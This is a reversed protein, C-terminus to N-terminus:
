AEANATARSPAQAHARAPAHAQHVAASSAKAPHRRAAQSFSILRGNAEDWLSLRAFGFSEVLGIKSMARLEPHDRMVQGLRYYPIRSSLHHVHHVGINATFWHLAPPLDYQSSGLLAFDHRNWEGNRAWAVGEYQHQVFFLWVGTTAAVLVTTLYIMLVPWLGFVAAAGGILVAAVATTGLTSAWPRWGLHMLGVPLRNQLFFTFAPGLGFLVLPHRYLRYGLRRLRPLARYEDVTLLDIGGLGRRDLNGSTAHHMNHTRRWYDYPTLTFVGITRGAWNNLRGGRFFAGHGCDHQILFLRVLFLGAPLTLLLAAWWLGNQYALGALAWLLLLPGATIAIEAASRGHGPEHYSALQRAWNLGGPTQETM